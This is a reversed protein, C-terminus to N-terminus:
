PEAIVPRGGLATRFAWVALVLVALLCLWSGRAWWAALELSIPINSIATGSVLGTILALLGFRGAVLVLLLAILAALM